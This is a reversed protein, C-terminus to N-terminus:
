ALILVTRFQTSANACDMWTLTTMAPPHSVIIVDRVQEFRSKTIPHTGSLEQRYAKIISKNIREHVIWMPMVASFAQLQFIPIVLIRIFKRTVLTSKFAVFAQASPSFIVVIDNRNGNFPLFPSMM